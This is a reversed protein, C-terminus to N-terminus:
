DFNKDGSETECWQRTVQHRYDFMKELRPVVAFPAVLKGLFGLPPEYEIEDRLLTGTAQSEIIHRHYWSAFPGSLQTDQFERPPNYATHRAHWKVTILGFLKTEIIAEEGVQLSHAKKIVRAKEWPPLLRELADPLEHFAWVREPAANIMSEKVFRM